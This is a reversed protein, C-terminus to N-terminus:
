FNKKKNCISSGLYFKNFNEKDRQINNIKISQCHTRVADLDAQTEKSSLDFRLNYEDLLKRLSKVDTPLGESGLHVKSSICNFGEHFVSAPQDHLFGIYNRLITYLKHDNLRALVYQGNEKYSMETLKVIPSKLPDIFSSTSQSPYLTEGKQFNISKTTSPQSTLIISESQTENSISSEPVNTSIKTEAKKRITRRLSCHRSFTSSNLSDSAINPHNSVTKKQKRQKLRNNEAKKYHLMKEDYHSWDSKWVKKEGILRWGGNFKILEIPQPVPTVAVAAVDKKSVHSTIKKPENLKLNKLEDLKANTTKIELLCRALDNSHNHSNRHDTRNSTSTLNDELTSSMDTLVELSQRISKNCNHSLEDLKDYGSICKQEIEDFKSLTKYVEESLQELTIFSNILSKVSTAVYEITKELNILRSDVKDFNNKTLFNFIHAPTIDNCKSCLSKNIQENSNRLERKKNITDIVFGCVSCLSM